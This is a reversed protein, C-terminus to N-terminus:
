VQGYTSHGAAAELKRVRELYEPPCVTTHDGLLLAGYTARAAAELNVARQYALDLSDAVILCGHHRLLIVNADKLQEAVAEALEDTGSPVYPVQAIKRLYYAHDITILRIEHGLAHLLASTPPHLHFVTRAEPRARYAALHMPAESSQRLRGRRRQGDPGVVVLHEPELEALSYGSPTIVIDDSAPIRASLNGGAGIVLGSAVLKAGAASLERWMDDVDGAVAKM